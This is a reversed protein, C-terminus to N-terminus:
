RAQNQTRYETNQIRQGYTLSRWTWELPGFRYRRLWWPSVILLVAWIAVVIAIQATRQVSGFLGLGHGYFITTAILTQLIYNSFAMRGVAALRAVAGDLVGARVLGVILGTYGLAVGVSGWYNWLSGFFLSYEVSWGHAFHQRMGHIVLPLGVAFGGAALAAYARVSLAASFVGLKFLAMGLLMLGLVRWGFLLVFYTTQMELSEPARHRSQSLFGGRYAELEADIVSAPPQWGEDRVEAFQAPTLSRGAMVPVATGAALLALAVAALFGPARERFAFAVFGCMGYAYLIDGYWFLYAHILGFLVLWAMRRYHLRAADHGAREAMLVIGAGFLMSFVAMFKQDFFVHSVIWVWLNAGTLDGYATPNVYAAVPMAFSQINMVLIGLLVFGRLADMSVLRASEAVPAARPGGSEFLAPTVRPRRPRTM